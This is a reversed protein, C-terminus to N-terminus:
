EILEDSRLLLSAPVDIGLIKATKLNIALRYKTPAQVPLESPKKGKLIQDVYEAARRFDNDFDVGYFVLAGALAHEPRSTHIAPLHYHQELAIIQESYSNTVTGIM